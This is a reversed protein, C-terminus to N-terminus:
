WKKVTEKGFDNKHRYLDNGLGHPTQRAERITQLFHHGRQRRFDRRTGGEGFAPAEAPCANYIAIAGSYHVRLKRVM